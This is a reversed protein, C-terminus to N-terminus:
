EDNEVSINVAKDLSKRLSAKIARENKMLTSRLKQSSVCMVITACQPTIKAKVLVSEMSPLTIEFSFAETFHTTIADLIPKSMPRILAKLNNPMESIEESHNVQPGLWDTQFLRLGELAEGRFSAVDELYSSSLYGNTNNEPQKEIHTNAGFHNM